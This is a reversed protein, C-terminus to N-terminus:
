GNAKVKTRRVEGPAATATEVNVQRDQYGVAYRELDATFCGPNAKVVPDDAYYLRGGEVMEWESVFASSTCIVLDAM